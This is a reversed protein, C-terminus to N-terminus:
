VIDTPVVASLSLITKIQPSIFQRLTPGVLTIKPFNEIITVLCLTLPPKWPHGFTVPIVLIYNESPKDTQSLAQSLAPQARVPCPCPRSSPVSQACVLCLCSCPSPVLVPVLVSPVSCLSPVTVPPAPCPSLVPVIVPVTVLPVPCPSPVPQNHGFTM